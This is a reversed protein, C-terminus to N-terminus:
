LEDLAKKVIAKHSAIKEQMPSDPYRTSIDELIAYSSELLRKRTEPDQTRRASLFLEAARNREQNIVGEVAQNRLALSERDLEEDGEKEVERIKTMAEDFREKEILAKAEELTEHLLAHREEKQDEFAQEQEELWKIQDELVESTGPTIGAQIGYRILLLRAAKFNREQVLASAQEVIGELSQSIEPYGEEPVEERATQIETEHSPAPATLRQKLRGTVALRQEQLAMLRQYESLAGEEDGVELSWLAMDARFETLDPLKELRKVVKKGIELAQETSGQQALSHALVMQVGPSLAGDGYDRRIELYGTIVGEFDRNRYDRLIAEEKDWLVKLHEIPSTPEKEREFWAKDLTKMTEQLSAVRDQVQDLDGPLPQLDRLDSYARVLLRAGARVDEPTDPQAMISELLEIRKQIFPDPAKPEKVPVPTPAPLYTTVTPEPSPTACGWLTLLIIFFFLFLPRKM